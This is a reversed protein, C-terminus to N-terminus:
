NNKNWFFDCFNWKKWLIFISFFIAFNRFKAVLFFFLFFFESDTQMCEHTNKSHFWSFFVHFFFMFFFHKLSLDFTQFFSSHRSSPNLFDLCLTLLSFSPTLSSRNDRLLVCNPSTIIIIIIIIRCYAFSCSIILRRNGFAAQQMAAQNIPNCASLNV